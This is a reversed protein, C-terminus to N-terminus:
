GMQQIIYIFLDFLIFYILLYFANINLQHTTLDTLIIHIVCPYLGNNYMKYLSGQRRNTHTNKLWAQKTMAFKATLVRFLDVFLQILIPDLSSIFTCYLIRDSCKMLLTSCLNVAGGCMERATASGEEKCEGLWKTTFFVLLALSRWTHTSPRNPRACGSYLLLTVVQAFM